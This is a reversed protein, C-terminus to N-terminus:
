EKIFSITKNRGSNSVNLLYYGSEINNYDLEIRKYTDDANVQQTSILRGDTSYLKFYVKENVALDTLEVQILGETPNPFLFADFTNLSATLGNFQSNGNYICSGDDVNAIPNFNLADADICGQVDNCSMEVGFMISGSTGFQLTAEAYTNPGSIVAVAGNWGDGWSDNMQFEYCGTPLCSWVTQDEWSEYGSGSLVVAGQDNLISWSVESGWISTAISVAILNESCDQEYMCSGDDVSAYPNYNIANYDTCGEIIFGCNESNIGLTTISQSGYELSFEGIVEGNVSVVLSGNDWGDGFSDEMVLTYCGDGLCVALTGTSSYAVFQGDETILSFSPENSFISGGLEFVVINELCNEAYFCEGEQNAYPDYNLAIPDMCGVYPYQCSGDNVNADPNYNLAQSDTCGPIIVAGCTGDISFITSSQQQGPLLEGTSIQYGGISIWYYGNYWGYPGFNNIMNVTYCVGPNLCLTTYDIAGSNLNEIYVIENGDDDLIQLEVQNGNSFTCVYLQAQVGNLDTCYQCSNDNMNAQADFNLALPDTCGSYICSGAELLTALPDYNDAEPDTCGTIPGCTGDISFEISQNQSNSNPQANIFQQGLGNVWFYGGYWGYPGALNIMHATYCMGPLLCIDLYQIASANAGNAVAVTNGSEDEIVLSVNAANSFTCLYLTGTISGAGDCYECSGDDQTATPNFNLANYDTCGSIICSGDDVNAAPDYNSAAPNTCGATIPSVYVSFVVAGPCSTGFDGIRILYSNGAFLNTVLQSQLGCADDNQAIVNQYTDLSSPCASYIWIRTDCTNLGCMFLNIQVDSAPSYAYWNDEFVGTIVQPSNNEVLDLGIPNSCNAGFDTQALSFNSWFIFAVFLSLHYTPKM